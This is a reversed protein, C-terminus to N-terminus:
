ERGDLMRKQRAGNLPVPGKGCRLSTPTNFWGDMLKDSSRLDVKSEAHRTDAQRRMVVTFFGWIWIWVLSDTMQLGKQGVDESGLSVAPFM